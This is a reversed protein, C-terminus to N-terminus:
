IKVTINMKEMIYDSDVTIEFIKDSKLFAEKIDYKFNKIYENETIRFDGKKYQEKLHLNIKEILKDETLNFEKLTEKLSLRKGNELNFYYITDEYTGSAGIQLLWYSIRLCLVNGTIGYEYELLYFGSM